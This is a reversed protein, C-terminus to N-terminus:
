INEKLKENSHNEIFICKLGELYDTMLVSWKGNM